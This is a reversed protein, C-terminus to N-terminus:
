KNKGIIFLNKEFNPLNERKIQFTESKSYLNPRTSKKLGFLDENRFISCKMHYEMTKVPNLQKRINANHQLLVEEINIRKKRYRNTIEDNNFNIKNNKSKVQSNLKELALPLPPTKILEKFM